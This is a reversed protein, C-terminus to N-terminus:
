WEVRIPTAPFAWIPKLRDDDPGVEEGAGYEKIALLLTPMGDDYLQKWQEWASKDPQQQEMWYGPELLLATYLTVMFRAASHFRYNLNWGVLPGVHGAALTIMGQVQQLTPRTTTTFDATTSYEGAVRSFMLAAVDASSPTYDGVALRGTDLPGPYVVLTGGQVDDPNTVAWEYRYTGSESVPILAHYSGASDTVIPAGFSASTTSVGAPTVTTITLSAPAVPLGTAPDTVLLRLRATDGRDYDAM